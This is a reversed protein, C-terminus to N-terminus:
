KLLESPLIDINARHVYVLKGDISIKTTKPLDNPIEIYCSDGQFLGIPAGTQSYVVIANSKGIMNKYSNIFKDISILGSTNNNEINMEEPIQFDTLMDVGNQAFILTNGVHNWEYGDITINIYSSLEENSYQGNMSVKDGKVTMNKNGFNDYSSIIYDNGNLSGKLSSKFSEFVECGTLVFVSIIIIVLLVILKNKM